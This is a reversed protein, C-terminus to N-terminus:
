YTRVPELWGAWNPVSLYRADHDALLRGRQEGRVPLVSLCALHGLESQVLEICPTCSIRKWRRSQSLRSGGGAFGKREVNREHIKYKREDSWCRAHNFGVNVTTATSRHNIKAIQHSGVKPDYHDGVQNASVAEKELVLLRRGEIGRGRRVQVGRPREIKPWRSGNAVTIVFIRVHNQFV